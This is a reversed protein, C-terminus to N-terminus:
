ERRVLASGRGLLLLMGGLEIANLGRSPLCWRGIFVIGIPVQDEAAQVLLARLEVMRASEEPLSESSQQQQQLGMMDMMEGTGPSMGGGMDMGPM